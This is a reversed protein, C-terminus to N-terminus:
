GNSWLPAQQKLIQKRRVCRKAPNAGLARGTSCDAVRDQVDCARERFARRRFNIV